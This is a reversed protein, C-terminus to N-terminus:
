PGTLWHCHCTELCWTCYQTAFRTSARHRRKATQGKHWQQGLRGPASNQMSNTAADMVYGRGLMATMLDRVEPADYVEDIKDQLERVQSGEINDM